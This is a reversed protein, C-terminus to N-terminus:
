GRPPATESREGGSNCRGEYANAGIFYESREDGAKRGREDKEPPSFGPLVSFPADGRGGRGHNSKHEEGEGVLVYRAAPGPRDAVRPTVQEAQTLQDPKIVVPSGVGAQVNEGSRSGVEHLRDEAPPLSRFHEDAASCPNRDACDGHDGCREHQPLECSALLPM